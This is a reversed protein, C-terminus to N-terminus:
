SAPKLQVRAGRPIEAQLVKLREDPFHRILTLGPLDALCDRYGTPRASWQVQDLPGGRDEVFILMQLPGSIYSARLLECPQWRMIRSRDAEPEAYFWEELTTMLRAKPEARLLDIVFQRASSSEYTLQWSPWRRVQAGILASRWVDGRPTPVATSGLEIITLAAFALVYARSSLAVAALGTRGERTMTAVFYAICVALPRIPEYYRRDQVYNYTGFVGCLWLFLPLTVLLGACVVRLDNLWLSVPQHRDAAFALLPVMLAMGALVLGAAQYDVDAWWRFSAPFWFLLGHNAGALTTLSERVRVAIDAPGGARLAVGGPATGGAALVGNIYGQIVLAPLVGAGLSLLRKGSLAMRRGCQSAIIAVAYVALFVSAYRALVSAGVILGAVFDSRINTQERPTRTILQLVWPVAAWLLIDTGGWRSTFLLPSVIAVFDCAFRWFTSRRRGESM